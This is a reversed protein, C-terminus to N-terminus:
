AMARQCSRVSVAVFVTANISKKPRGVLQKVVEAEMKKELAMKTKLTAFDHEVNAQMKEKSITAFMTKLTRQKPMKAARLM